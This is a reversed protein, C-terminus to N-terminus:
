CPAAGEVALRLGTSLPVETRWGLEREVKECSGIWDLGGEGEVDQFTVPLALMSGIETALGRISTVEQGAVNYIDLAPGGRTLVREIARILDGIFVPTLRPGDSGGVLRVPRGASICERLRPILRGKQGPGYPFFPRVITVDMASASERCLAEAQRKTEAYGGTTGLPSWEGLPACASKYVGGTSMFVFHRLGSQMAFDLMRRTGEVNVSRLLDQSGGEDGVLAALHVISDLAAPWRSPELDRALDQQLHRAHKAPTRDLTWVDHAKSLAAALARGVFGSAGTILVRM